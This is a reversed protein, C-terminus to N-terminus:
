HPNVDSIGWHGANLVFVARGTFTGAKMGSAAGAATPESSWTFLANFKDPSGDVQTSRNFRDVHRTAAVFQWSDGMDVVNGYTSLGSPTMMPVKGGTADPQMDVAHSAMLDSLLSSPRVKSCVITNNAQFAGDNEVLYRAYDETLGDPLASAASAPAEASNKLGTTSVTESIQPVPKKGCTRSLVFLLFFAAVVPIITTRAVRVLEDDM